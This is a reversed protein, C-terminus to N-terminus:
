CISALFVRWAYPDAPCSSVTPCSVNQLALGSSTAPSLVPVAAEILHSCSCPGDRLRRAWVHAKARSEEPSSLSEVDTGETGFETTVTAKERSM